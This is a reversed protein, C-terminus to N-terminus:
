GVSSGSLASWPTSVHAVLTSVPNEGIVAPWAVDKDDATPADAASGGPVQELHCRPDRNDHHLGIEAIVERGCRGGATTYPLQEATGLVDQQRLVGM